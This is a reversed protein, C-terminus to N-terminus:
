ERGDRTAFLGKEKIPEPLPRSKITTFGVQREETPNNIAELALIVAALDDADSNLQDVFTVMDHAEVVMPWADVLIGESDPDSMMTDMNSSVAKMSEMLATLVDVAYDIHDLPYASDLSESIANIIACALPDEPFELHSIYELISDDKYAEAAEYLMYEVLKADEEYSM